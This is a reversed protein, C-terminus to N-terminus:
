LLIRELYVQSHNRPVVIFGCKIWFSQSNTEPDVFGFLKQLGAEKSAKALTEIFSNGIGSRHYAPELYFHDILLSHRVKELRIGSIYFLPPLIEDHVIPQGKYDYLAVELQDSDNENCQTRSSDVVPHTFRKIHEELLQYRSNM